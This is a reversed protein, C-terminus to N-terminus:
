DCRANECHIELFSVRQAITFVCLALAHRADVSPWEGVGPETKPLPISPLVTHLM